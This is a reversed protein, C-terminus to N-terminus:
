GEAYFLFRLLLKSLCKRDVDDDDDDDDDDDGDQSFFSRLSVFLGKNIGVHHGTKFIALTQEARKSSPINLYLLTVKSRKLVALQGAIKFALYFSYIM